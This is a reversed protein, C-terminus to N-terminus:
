SESKTGMNVMSYNQFVTQTNGQWARLSHVEQILQEMYDVARALIMPRALERGDDTELIARPMLKKLREFAEKMADRRKQEAVKHKFNRLVAVNSDDQTENPTIDKAAADPNKLPTEPRAVEVNESGGLDTSSTQHSMIPEDVPGSEETNSTINIFEYNGLAQDVMLQTSSELDSTSTHRRKTRKRSSQTGMVSLATTSATREIPRRGVLKALPIVQTWSKEPFSSSTHNDAQCTEQPTTLFSEASDRKRKLARNQPNNASSKTAPRMAPNVKGEGVAMRSSKPNTVESLLLPNTPLTCTPQPRQRRVTHSRELTGKASEVQLALGAWYAEGDSVARQTPRATLTTSNNLSLGSNPVSGQPRSVIGQLTRDQSLPVLPTETRNGNYTATTTMPMSKTPTTFEFPLSTSAGSHPYLYHAETPSLLSSPHQTLFPYGSWGTLSAQNNTMVKPDMVPNRTGTNGSPPAFAVSVPPPHLPMFSGANAGPHFPSIPSMLGAALLAPAQSGVLSCSTSSSVPFASQIDSPDHVPSFLSFPTAESAGNESNCSSPTVPVPAILGLASPATYMTGHSAKGQHAQQMPLTFTPSDPTSPYATMGQIMTAECPYRACSDMIVSM